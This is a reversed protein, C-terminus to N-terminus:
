QVTQGGLDLAGQNTVCRFTVSLVQRLCSNVKQLM